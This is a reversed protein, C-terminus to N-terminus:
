KIEFSMDSTSSINGGINTVSLQETLGGQEDICMIKIAFAPEGGIDSCDFMVYYPKGHEDLKKSEFLLPNDSDCEREKVYQFQMPLRENVTEVIESMITDDLSNKETLLVIYNKSLGSSQEQLVSKFVVEFVKLVTNTASINIVSQEDEVGLDSSGDYLIKDVYAYAPDEQAYGSAVYLVKAQEGMQIAKQRNGVELYMEAIKVSDGAAVEWNASNMAEIVDETMMEASLIIDTTKEDEHDNDIANLEDLNIIVEQNSRNDKGDSEYILENSCGCLMLLLAFIFFAAQLRTTM